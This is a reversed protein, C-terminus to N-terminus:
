TVCMGYYIKKSHRGLVNYLDNLARCHRAFFMPINKHM